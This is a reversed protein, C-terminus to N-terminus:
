DEKVPLFIKFAAGEGPASTVEIRGKHQEIIRHTIALGLGTGSVKTTYFPDFIYPLDKKDIGPGNDAIEIVSYKEEMSTRITIMGNEPLIDVANTIINILGEKIRDGDIVVHKMDGSYEKIIRLKKKKIQDSMLSVVDEIVTNVISIEKKLRIDRVYGLIDKLIGELRTVEMTIVSAYEKLSGELKKELRRSFGGISVLPNRIEHAVKAAVEGLAAMREAMALKERLKKLESVDRVVHVTGLFEGQTNFIPSSSTLLTGGLYPDEIEEVYAQMTEVTKHHPCQTWPKDMGHFVEYCKKGVIEEPSKGLRDAVARNINKIVYDRTTFYVMDSISEFINELETEALKVQEFLRAGEIAAAVQDAFGRLFRIDEDIIPKRNFYNDVWLVGLVNNRSVLPIVAYAQTGLQQILVADSLPETRVDKVNIPIKEKVSRTLTSEEDLSITMGVGLKDLFSDKKLPGTEVEQLLDPLTKKEISLKDWIQWAEEASSPGVGMAGRIVNKDKDVLFLIARNFGLGDSMTVATLIMRLLRELDLTGRMASSIFFLRSLEQNRRILEKEVKKKESIDRSIGSIGIIEGSTDKIPSLTLSIEFMKGEKNIRVTELDKITEGKKLREIYAKETEVLFDPVFPLFTGLAEEESFGYIRAAARNWSTITGQLDTTIIADASDDILSELYEKTQSVEKYLSLIEEQYLVRDTIDQIFVVAEIINGSEDRIPYSSLEAYNIGRSQTLTNIEGTQFTAQSVCHPCIMNEATHFIEVSNKGIIDERKRDIWNEVYKNALLITGQRNLTLIGGRVSEFLTEMRKKAELATQERMRERDYSMIKEYGIATISAFGETTELDETSFSIATGRADTKDFLGITGIVSEDIKMPVIVVSKLDIRPRRMEEPLESVDEILLSKGTRAVMGAIGDGIKLDLERQIGAPLGHMSQVKLDDGDLIRIICGRANLLRTTEASVKRFLEDLTLASTVTQALEYLASFRKLQTKAATYLESNKLATGITHAILVFLNIEEQPIEEQLQSVTVLLGSVMNESTIPVALLSGTFGRVCGTSSIQDRSLSVPQTRMLIERSVTDDPPISDAFIEAHDRSYAERKFDKKLPHYLYLATGDKVTRKPIIDAIVTFASSLDISSSVLNAIDLLIETENLKDKIKTESAHVKDIMDNFRKSLIGFEDERDYSVRYELDGLAIKETATLLLNMPRHVVRRILLLLSFSAVFLFVITSILYASMANKIRETRLSVMDLSFLSANHFEEISGMIGVTKNDLQRILSLVPPNGVPQGYSFLEKVSRDISDFEEGIRNLADRDKTVERLSEFTTIVENRRERYMRKYELQGTFGWNKAASVLDVIAAKLVEHQRHETSVQKMISIADQFKEFIYM